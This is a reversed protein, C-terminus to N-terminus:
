LKGRQKTPLILNRRKINVGIIENIRDQVPQALHIKNFKNYHTYENIFLKDVNNLKTLKIM